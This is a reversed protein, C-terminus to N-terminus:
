EAGEWVKKMAALRKCSVDRTVFIQLRLLLQTKHAATIACPQMPAGSM